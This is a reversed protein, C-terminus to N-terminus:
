VPRYPPLQWAGRSRGPQAPLAARTGPDAAGPRGPSAHHPTAGGVLIVEDVNGAKLRALMERAAGARIPLEIRRLIPETWADFAERTVDVVPSQATLNGGADAVRVAVSSEQSLQCKALECQQIMRAVSLPSEFEASEFVIGRSALVRAAMTRTFDEGGLVCEGASARVELLGAFLDVISVDFTGGGLDVVALVKEDNMSHM